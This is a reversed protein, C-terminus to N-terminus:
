IHTIKRAIEEGKKELVLIEDFLDAQRHRLEPTWVKRMSKMNVTAKWLESDLGPIEPLLGSLMNGMQEYVAAMEKVMGSEILDVSSQLYRFAAQRADVLSLYCYYNVDLRRGFKEDDANEYWEDDRLDTQWTRYADYGVSYGRDGRAKMSEVMVKLSNLLNLHDTPVIGKQGFYTIIFPWNDVHLYKEENGPRNDFDSSNIIDDDFYTRCLLTNGNDEYGCIVGWEHAVRLNIGLVPKGQKISDVIKSREIVRYKKEVGEAFQPSYGFANYGPSAYDYVILADVSSYDWNPSLFAIRWCAGSVGMVKIYSTTEGMARLAVT